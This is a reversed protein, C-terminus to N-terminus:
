GQLAFQDARAAQLVASPRPAMAEAPSAGELWCSPQAFWEAIEDDDLCGSLQDIVEAVGPLLELGSPEFQFLPLLIQGQCKFHVVRRKVIWHALVSIPQDVSKGLLRTMADSDVVGGSAGYARALAPPGAPPARTATSVPM